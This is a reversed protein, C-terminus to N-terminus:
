IQHYTSRSYPKKQKTKSSIDKIKKVPPPQIEKTEEKSTSKDSDVIEVEKSEHGEKKLVFESLESLAVDPDAGIENIYARLFLRIYPGHILDFDGTEIAQLYKINIKTRSEIDVLEIKQDQRLKKYKEYFNTM